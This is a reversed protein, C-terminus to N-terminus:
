SASFGSLLRFVTQLTAGSDLSQEILLTGAQDAFATAAFFELQAASNPPQKRPPRRVAPAGRAACGDHGRKAQESRWQRQQKRRQAAAKRAARKPRDRHEVKQQAETSKRRM